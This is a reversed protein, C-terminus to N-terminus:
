TDTYAIDYFLNPRYVSSQYQEVPARLQLQNLIDQQVHATATATLAMWPIQFHCMWYAFPYSVCVEMFQQRLAGLKLYDPRFDHGWQSVCHAEDVIFANLKNYKVLHEYLTIFSGTACM